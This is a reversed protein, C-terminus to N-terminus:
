AQKLWEKLLGTNVPGRKPEPKRVKPQPKAEPYLRHEIYECLERHEYMWDQEALYRLYGDPVERLLRGKYKGFPM